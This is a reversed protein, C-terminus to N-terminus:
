ETPTAENALGDLWARASWPLGPVEKVLRDRISAYSSGDQKRMANALAMSARLRNFEDVDPAIATERLMELVAPDGLEAVARGFRWMGLSRRPTDTQYAVLLGRMFRPLDLGTDLLRDSETAHAAEGYSSYAPRRFQDGMIRIQFDLFCGMRGAAFCTEAHERAVRQPASDMSCRGPPIVFEGEAAKDTDLLVSVYTWDTWAAGGAPGGPESLRLVELRYTQGDAEVTVARNPQLRGETPRWDRRGTFRWDHRDLVERSEAGLTFLRHRGDRTEVGLLVRDAEIKEGTVRVEAVQVYQVQSARAWAQEFRPRDPWPFPKPREPTTKQGRPLQLFAMQPFADAAPPASISLALTLAIPSM